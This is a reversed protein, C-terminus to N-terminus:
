FVNYRDNNQSFQKSMYKIAVNPRKTVSLDFNYKPIIMALSVVIDLIKSEDPKNSPPPMNLKSTQLIHKRPVILCSHAHIMNKSKSNENFNHFEIMQSLPIKDVSKKNIKKNLMNKIIMLKNNFLREDEQKRLMSMSQTHNSLINFLYDKLMIKPADDPYNKFTNRISQRDNNM